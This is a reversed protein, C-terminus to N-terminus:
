RIELGTPRPEEESATHLLPRHGNSREPAQGSLEPDGITVRDSYAAKLV